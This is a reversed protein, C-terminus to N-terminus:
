RGVSPVSLPASAMAPAPSTIRRNEKELTLRQEELQRRREKIREMEMKLEKSDQEAESAEGPRYVRRNLGKTSDM